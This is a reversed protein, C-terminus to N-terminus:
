LNSTRTMFTSVDTGQTWSRPGTVYGIFVATDGASSTRWQAGKLQGAHLGSAASRLRVAASRRPANPEPRAVTVSEEVPAGASSM